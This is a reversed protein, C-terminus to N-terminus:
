RTAPAFLRQRLEDLTACPRSKLKEVFIRCTKPLCESSWDLYTLRDERFVRDGLEFLSCFLENFLM